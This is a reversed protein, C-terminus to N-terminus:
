AYVVQVDSKQNQVEVFRRPFFDCYNDTQTHGFLLSCRYFHVCDNCTKGSPLSMCNEPDCAKDACCGHIM